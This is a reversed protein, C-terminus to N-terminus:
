GHNANMKKTQLVKAPQQCTSCIPPPGSPEAWQQPQGQAMEKFGFTTAQTRRTRRTVHEDPLVTHQALDRPFFTNYTAYQFVATLSLGIHAAPNSGFLRGHATSQM